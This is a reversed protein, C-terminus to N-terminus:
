GVGVQYAASFRTIAAHRRVQRSPVLLNGTDGTSGGINGYEARHHYYYSLLRWYKTAHLWVRYFLYM